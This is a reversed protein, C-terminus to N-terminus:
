KWSSVREITNNSYSSLSNIRAKLLAKRGETSRTYVLKTKDVQEAWTKHFFEAYKKNQAIIEPVPYYDIQGSYSFPMKKCILYRPNSIPLFLEQIAKLFQAREYNTCGELTVFYDNGPRKDVVITIDKEKTDIVEMFCLTRLLSKAIVKLSRKPSNHRIFLWLTRLLFPIFVISSVMFFQNLWFMVDLLFNVHAFQAFLFGGVMCFEILLSVGLSKTYEKTREPIDNNILLRAASYLSPAVALASIIFVLGLYKSLSEISNISFLEGIFYGGCLILEIFIAALTNKVIYGRPLEVDRTEVGEYMRNFKTNKHLADKWTQSLQERSSAKQKMFSNLSSINSKSFNFTDIGLRNIGNKIVTETFSIGEFAKFRRVLLGFDSGPDAEGEEVTALHWINATKNPDKTYTRIARGRIQNSLMYSGVISGLILSNIFPADWGEGLLAQTGVMVTIGGAAFLDTILSVIRQKNEGVFEVQVFNEDYSLNKVSVNSTNIKKDACLKNLLEISSKPIVVISGTLIGLKINPINKRRLYEFIPIVGIKDLPPIDDKNQPIESKRIYDTLIVQRLSNGLVSEELRVIEEISNFKNQSRALMKQIKSNNKLNIKKKELAGIRKLKNELSQLLEENNSFYERYQYICGSLLIQLWDYTLKPIKKKSAGLIEILKDPYYDTKESNCLFIIISSFFSPDNLIFEINNEPDQLTKDRGLMNIFDNNSKLDNIFSEIDKRFKVLQVSENDSPLSFLVYDQHPCLNGDKVLEPVSIEADITGCLDLFRNWEQGCVDYPPTGTLSVTVADKLQSVLKTLSKWWESRLHHSEDLIVTKVGIEQLQKIADSQNNDTQNETIETEEEEYEEHEFPKGSIISHLMQYTTVTILKPFKITDSVWNPKSSGEPLFSKHMLEVWQNRITITPVIILAPNNLQRLIEIGLTTKGSGPAAVFNLHQDELFQEMEELLRKQYSRWTGQFKFEAPFIQERNKSTKKIKAM